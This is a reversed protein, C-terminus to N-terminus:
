KKKGLHGSQFRKQLESTISVLRKVMEPKITDKYNVDGQVIENRTDHIQVIEDLEVESLYGRLMLMAAIQM